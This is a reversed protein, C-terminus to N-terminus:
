CEAWSATSPRNTRHRGKRKWAEGITEYDPDHKHAQPSNQGGGLSMVVLRCDPSPVFWDIARYGKTDLATPDVLTPVVTL